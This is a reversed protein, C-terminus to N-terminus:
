GRAVAELAADRAMKEAIMLTDAPMFNQLFGAAERLKGDSLLGTDRWALIERAIEPLHAAIISKASDMAIKVPAVPTQQEAAM